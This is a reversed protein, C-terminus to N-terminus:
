YAWGETRELTRRSGVSELDDAQFGSARSSRKTLEFELRKQENEAEATKRENELVRVHQRLRLTDQQEIKSTTGTRTILTKATFTIGARTKQTAATFAIRTASSLNRKGGAGVRHGVGAKATKCKRLEQTKSSWKRSRDGERHNRTAM